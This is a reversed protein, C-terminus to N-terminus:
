GGAKNQKTENRNKMQLTQQQTKLNVEATNFRNIGSLSIKMKCKITKMEPLKQQKKLM